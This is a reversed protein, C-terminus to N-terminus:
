ALHPWPGALALECLLSPQKPDDADVVMWAREGEVLLGEGKELLPRGQETIPAYVARDRGIWGLTLGAIEGDDYTNPSAEAAGLYAVGDGAACGDNFTYCVGRIEGLDWVTVDRLPPVPGRAELFAVFAAFSIRATANIPLLLGRPAGNGRQFLWLDDGVRAVGELNPESGGFAAEHLLAYWESPHFVHVQPPKREFDVRVITERKPTSGSGFGYVRTEDVLCAELDWKAAKNGRTTDFQRVGDDVPFLIAEALGTLPDVSALMHTDDQVVVFKDGVRGLGSGARVHAPRDTRPDAGGAFLLPRRSVIEAILASDLEVARKYAM